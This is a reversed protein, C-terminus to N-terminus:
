TRNPLCSLLPDRIGLKTFAQHRTQCGRCKGCPETVDEYCSWTLELPVGLKKSLRLVGQKDLNIFPNLIECPNGEIGMRTGVRLLENIRRIFEPTADPLVTSDDLNSGFVISDANIAEAYATAIGYFVLNRAPVYASSVEASPDPHYLTQIEKYFPLQVTIHEKVKAAEALRRAAEAERISAQAYLVNLSHIDATMRKTWYLATASDIGGSLFVIARKLANGAKSTILTM